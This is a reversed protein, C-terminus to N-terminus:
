SDSVLRAFVSIPCSGYLGASKAPHGSLSVVCFIFPSTPFFEKWNFLTPNPSLTPTTPRYSQITRITRFLFTDASPKLEPVKIKKSFLCIELSIGFVFLDFFQQGFFGTARGAHTPRIM